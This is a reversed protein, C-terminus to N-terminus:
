TLVIHGFAIKPLATAPSGRCSPRQQMAAAPPSPGVIGLLLIGLFPSFLLQHKKVGVFCSILCCSPCGCCRALPLPRQSLATAVPGSRTPRQSLSAAFPGSRRSPREQMATAPPGSRCPRQPLAAAPPGSICPRQPLAAAAHGSSRSPRQQMAAAPFGSPSLLHPRRVHITPQRL